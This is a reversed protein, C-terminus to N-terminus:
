LAGIAKMGLIIMAGSLTAVAIGYNVRTNVGISFINFIFLLLWLAAAVFYLMIIEQLKILSPRGGIKGGHHFQVGDGFRVDVM